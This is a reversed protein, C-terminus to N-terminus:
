CERWSWQTVMTHPPRHLAPLLREIYWTVDTVQAAVVKRNVSASFVTTGDPSFLFEGGVGSQAWTLVIGVTEGAQAKQRLVAHVDALAELPVHQWDFQDLDNLPLYSVGGNDIPSWGLDILAEVLVLQPEHVAVSITFFAGLDLSM